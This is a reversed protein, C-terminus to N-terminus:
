WCPRHWSWVGDSDDRRPCSSGTMAAHAPHDQAALALQWEATSSCGMTAVKGSSWEQEALWTLSDYGDARPKGLIEWEGESYYRGRENQVVYAYGRELAELGFKLNRGSIKNFNYPTKVFVVPFPGKGKPLYVDTALGVGDRMPVMVM